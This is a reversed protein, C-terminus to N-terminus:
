LRSDILDAGTQLNAAAFVALIEILCDFLNAMPLRWSGEPHSAHATITV